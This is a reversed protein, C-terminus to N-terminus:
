YNHPSAGILENYDRMKSADKLIDACQIDYSPNYINKRSDNIRSILSELGESRSFLPLYWISSIDQFDFNYMFRYVIGKELHYRLYDEINHYSALCTYLDSEFEQWKYWDALQSMAVKYYYNDLMFCYHFVADFGQEECYRLCSRQANFTLPDLSSLRRYLVEYSSGNRYIEKYIYGYVSLLRDFSMSSFGRCKPFLSSMYSKPYQLVHSQGLRHIVRDYSIDGVSVKEQVEKKEFSRFGIAPSKSVLRFMKTAEYKYIGPLDAPVSVYETLYKSTGSDCYVTYKDFLTKDCMQWCAYLAYDKLYDSWERNECFILGHCHPRYKEGGLESVIYYRFTPNANKFRLNLSKRVSKLWLQIDRKSAYPVFQSATFPEQPVYNTIPVEFFDDEVYVSDLRRVLNCSIVVGNEDISPALRVNNWIPFYSFKQVSPDVFLDRYLVPLFKNAYTLTFYITYASHEIEMSVRQSWLNSSHLLCGSCHGCAVYSTVGNKSIKVPSCCYDLVQLDPYRGAM